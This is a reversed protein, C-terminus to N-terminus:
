IQNDQLNTVQSELSALRDELSQITLKNSKSYTAHIKLPAKVLDDTPFTNINNVGFFSVQKDYASLQQLETEDTIKEYTPTQLKYITEMPTGADYLSKLFAQFEDVTAFDTDRFITTASAASYIKNKMSADRNDNSVGIFYNSIVMVEDTKFLNDTIVKTSYSNVGYPYANFTEDGTFVYRGYDTRRYKGAGDLNLEKAEEETLTVIEGLLEKTLTLPLNNIISADENELETNYGGSVTLIESPRDISPSPTVYNYTVAMTTGLNTILEFVNTGEFLTIPEISPLEITTPETTEYLIRLPTGAEYLSKLWNKFEDTTMEKTKNSYIRITGDTDISIGEQGLYTQNPSKAILMNCLVNSINSNTPSGVILGRMFSAHHRYNTTSEAVTFRGWNEDGTFVYEKIVKDGIKVSGNRAIKLLDAIDGVKALSNGALDISHVIPEHYPEIETAVEGKEVQLAFTYNDFTVFGQGNNTDYGLWLYPTDTINEKITKISSITGTKNVVLPDTTAQAYYLLLIFGGTHITVNGSIYKYTLTVKEGINAKIRMDSIPIKAGPSTPTGNLTVTGDGNNTVTVGNITKSSTNINLLNKGRQVLGIHGYPLYPLDDLNIKEDALSLRVTVTQNAQPKVLVNMYDDIATNTVNGSAGMVKSYDSSANQLFVNCRNTDAFEVKLTYSKGGIIHKTPVQINVYSQVDRTNEIKLWGTKKDFTTSITTPVKTLQEVDLRNIMDIVEYEQKHNTNPTAVGNTYPEFITKQADTVMPKVIANSYVKGAIIYLSIGRLYKEEKLTIEKNLVGITTNSGIQNQTYNTGDYFNLQFDIRTAVNKDIFFYYKTNVELKEKILEKVPIFLTTNATPTGNLTIVGNKVTATVGNQTVTTDQLDLRNYGETTEQYSNGNVTVKVEKDVDGDTVVVSEGELTTGLEEPIVEQVPEGYPVLEMPLEAADTIHISDGSVTIQKFENKFQDIIESQYENTEQIEKVMEDVEKKTYFVEYSEQKTIYPTLDIVKNLKAAVEQSLLNETISGGKINATIKNDASILIQITATELGEYDNVLDTAPIRIEQGSVLVLYLEQTEPDYGGGKVTGEIPLDVIIQTNDYATFTFTATKNDYQVNKIFPNAKVEDLKLKLKNDINQFRQEYNQQKKDLEILANDVNEQLQYITNKLEEVEAIKLDLEAILTKFGDIEEKTPVLDDANENDYFNLEFNQSRIDQDDKTLWLYAEVTGYKTINNKIEYKNEPIYDWFNGDETIFVIRKSFDEYGLPVEFTLVTSKNENQTGENYFYDKEIKRNQFVKINM